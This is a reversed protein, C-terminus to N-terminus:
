CLRLLTPKTSQGREQSPIWARIGTWQTVKYCKFEKLRLKQMDLSFIIEM